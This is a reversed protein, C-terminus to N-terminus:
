PKAHNHIVDVVRMQVPDVVVIADNEAVAYKLSAAVPDGAVAADPLSTLDVTHPVAAGVTAAVQAPYSKAPQRFVANFIAQRQVATLALNQVVAGNPQVAEESGASQAFATATSLFTGLIVLGCINVLRM